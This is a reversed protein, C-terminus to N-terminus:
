LYSRKLQIGMGNQGRFVLRKDVPLYVAVPILSCVYFRGELPKVLFVGKDVDPYGFLRPLFAVALMAAIRAITRVQKKMPCQPALHAGYGAHFM